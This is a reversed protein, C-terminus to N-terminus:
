KKVVKKGGIIYLGAPLQSIQAESANSLIRVGTMTYVDGQRAGAMISSVGTDEYNNVTVKKNGDLKVIYKGDATAPLLEGAAEAIAGGAVPAEDADVVYVKVGKGEAPVIEIETDELDNIVSYDEVPVIRDKIVSFEVDEGAVIEATYLAPEKTIFCKVVSGDHISPGHEGTPDGIYYTSWGMYPEVKEGDVYCLYIEPEGYTEYLYVYWQYPLEKDAYPIVNYGPERKDSWLGTARTYFEFSGYDRNNYFQDFGEQDLDFYAVFQKDREMPKVRAVIKEYTADIYFTYSDAPNEVVEEEGDVIASLSVWSAGGKLRLDVRDGYESPVYEFVNEGEVLDYDTWNVSASLCEPLDVDIIIQRTERKEVTFVIDTDGTVKVKLQANLYDLDQEEGNITLKTVAYFETNFYVYMTKGNRVVHNGVVDEYVEGAIEVSSFFDEAYEAPDVSINVTYDIAEPYVTINVVDGDKVTGRLAGAGWMDQLPEGNVEAKYVEDEWNKHRVEITSEPAPLDVVNPENAVLGEVTEDSLSVTIDDPFDVNITIQPAKFESALMLTYSFVDGDKVSSSYATSYKYGTIEYTEDQTENKFEVLRYKDKPNEEGLEPNDILMIGLGDYEGLKFTNDGEVTEFADNWTPTGNHVTILSPDVDKVTVIRPIVVKVLLYVETENSTMRDELDQASIYCVGDVVPFNINTYDKYSYNSVTMMAKDNNCKLWLGQEIQVVFEYYENKQLDLLKGDEGGDRCELATYTEDIGGLKVQVASMSTVCLLLMALLTYIKKM